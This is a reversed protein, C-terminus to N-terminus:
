ETLETLAGSFCVSACRCGRHAVPLSAGKHCVLACSGVLLLQSRSYCDLSPNPLDKRIKEFLIMQFTHKQFVFFVYPSYTWFCQILCSNFILTSFYIFFQSLGSHTCFAGAIMCSLLYFPNPLFFSLTTDVSLLQLVFISIIPTLHTLCSYM